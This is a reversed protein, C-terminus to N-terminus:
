ENTRENTREEEFKLRPALTIDLSSAVLTQCPTAIIHYNSLKGLKKKNSADEGRKGARGARGQENGENM